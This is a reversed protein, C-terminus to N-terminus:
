KRYINELIQKFNIRELFKIGIFLNMQVHM